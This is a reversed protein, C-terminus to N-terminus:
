WHNLRYGIRPPWWEYDKRFQFNNGNEPPRSFMRDPPYPPRRSEGYPMRDSPHATFARGYSNRGSQKRFFNSEHHNRNRRVQPPPGPRRWQGRNDQYHPRNNSKSPKPCQWLLAETHKGINRALVSVGRNNLHINDKFLRGPWHEPDMM